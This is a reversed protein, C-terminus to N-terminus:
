ETSIDTHITASPSSRAKPLQQLLDANLIEHEVGVDKLVAHAFEPGSYCLNRDYLENIKDIALIKMLGHGLAHGARGRFIPSAQELESFSLLDM